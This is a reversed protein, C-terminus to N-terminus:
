EDGSLGHFNELSSQLTHPLAKVKADIAVHDHGLMNMQQEALRMTPRKGVSEFRELLARRPPQNSSGWELWLRAQTPL